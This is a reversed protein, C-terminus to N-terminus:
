MNIVLNYAEKKSVGFRRVFFEVIDKKSPNNALMHIDQEYDTITLPTIETKLIVVFEGRPESLHKQLESVKGVKYEEFLKTMERGIFIDIDGLLELIIDLSKSIRKPSEYFCLLEGERIESFIKSADSSTRPFFGCFRFSTKQFPCVSLAATLASCGPIPVVDISYEYCAEILKYGPDSITPTGADSILACKKGAAIESILASIKAPSTHDNCEICKTNIAYSTLLKKSNLVNECLILDVSKLVDIARMTFDRINGIPTSVIYLTKSKIDQM